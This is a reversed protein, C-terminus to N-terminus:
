LSLLTAQKLFNTKSSIVRYMNSGNKHICIGSKIIAQFGNQSRLVLDNILNFFFLM